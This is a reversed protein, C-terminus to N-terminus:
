CEIAMDKARTVLRDPRETPRRMTRKSDVEVCFALSAALCAADLAEDVADSYVALAESPSERTEDAAPGAMALAAFPTELASPRTPPRVPRNIAKTSRICGIGRGTVAERWAQQGQVAKNGRSSLKRNSLVSWISVTERYALNGEDDVVGLDANLEGLDDESAL